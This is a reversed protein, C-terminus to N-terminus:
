LESSKVEALLETPAKRGLPTQDFDRDFSVIRLNNQEAVVYQYADDFDLGFRDMAKTVLVTEEPRNTLLEIAGHLVVDDVFDVLTQPRNFRTLIICISHFSFDTIFIQDLPIRDLLEGVNEAKNQGLLRELWINTDFLYM